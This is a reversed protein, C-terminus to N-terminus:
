EKYFTWVMEIQIRENERIIKSMWRLTRIEAENVKQKIKKNKTQCEM